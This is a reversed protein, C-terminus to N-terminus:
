YEINCYRYLIGNYLHCVNYKEFVSHVLDADWGYTNAIDSLDRSHSYNAHMEGPLFDLTSYSVYPDGYCDLYYDLESSLIIRRLYGYNEKLYFKSESRLEKLYIDVYPNDSITSHTSLLSMGSDALSSINDLSLFFSLFANEIQGSLVKSSDSIDIDEFEKPNLDLSYDYNTYLGAFIGVFIIFIIITIIFGPLKDRKELRRYAKNTKYRDKARDKASYLKDYEKKYEYNYQARDKPSM